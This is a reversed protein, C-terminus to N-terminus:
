RGPAAPRPHAARDHRRDPRPRPRADPHQRARLRLAPVAAQRARQTAVAPSREGRRVGVLPQRARVLIRGAACRPTSRPAAPRFPTGSRTATAPQDARLEARGRESGGSRSSPSAPRAPRHRARPRRLRGAVAAELDDDRRPRLLLVLSTGARRKELSQRTSCGSSSAGVPWCRTTAWTASSTAPTPMSRASGSWPGTEGPSGSSANRGGDAPGLVAVDEDDLVQTAFPDSPRVASGGLAVCWIRRGTDADLSVLDPATDSLMTAVLYRRDSADYTSQKTDVEVSWRPRVSEDDLM